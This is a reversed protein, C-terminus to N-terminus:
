APLRDQSLGARERLTALLDLALVAVPIIWGFTQNDATLMPVVPLWSVLTMLRRNDLTMLTSCHYVAFYPSALLTVAAVIRARRIRPIKLPLLALPLAILGYPFVSSSFFKDGPNLRQLRDVWLGIWDPQAILTILGIGGAVLAAWALPRWGHDRWIWWAFLLFLGTGVQFKTLLAVAALGFWAPHIKDHVVLWGLAAGVMVLAEIQGLWVTWLLPVSFLSVIWRHKFAWAAFRAGIVTLAILAAWGHPWALATLPALLWHMYIPTTTDIYWPRLYYLGADYGGPMIYAVAVLGIMVGVFAPSVPWDITNETDPTPKTIRVRLWDM